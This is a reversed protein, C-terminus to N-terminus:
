YSITAIENVFPKLHCKYLMEIEDDFINELRNRKFNM